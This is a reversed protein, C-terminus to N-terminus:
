QSATENEEHQRGPQDTGWRREEGFASLRRVRDLRGERRPDLVDDVAVRDIHPATVADDESNPNVADVAWFPALRERVHRAVEGPRHHEALLDADRRNVGIAVAPQDGVHPGAFPVEGLGEDLRPKGPLEPTIVVIWAKRGKFPLSTLGPAAEPLKADVWMPRAIDRGPWKHSALARARVGDLQVAFTM